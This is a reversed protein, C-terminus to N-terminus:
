RLLGQLPKLQKADLDAKQLLSVLTVVDNATMGDGLVRVVGFSNENHALIVFEDIDDGEGLLSISAGKKVSGLKMLQEYNGSKILGKVSDKEKQVRAADGEYMLINLKELSELAKVEEKSLKLSDTQILSAGLDFTMFGKEDSKDIYYKQLSPGTSCSVLIVVATILATLLYLISRM